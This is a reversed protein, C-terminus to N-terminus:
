ERRRSRSQRDEVKIGSSEEQEELSGNQGAEITEKTVGEVTRLDAVFLVTHAWGSYDGFLNFFHKGVAKYVTSSITKPVKGEHRFRYDRVAIQWVHTDVPIVNHKDLSMLCVCDAVKPGVGQLALLATHAEEYSQNRLGMLWEEGRDMAHIMKATSAIYKARYGFGLSRLTEEVGDQALAEMTPFGYFTRASGGPEESPITLSPGYEQCIKLAMQSIRSINNNASCIFCILNEVPDQRLIRVGPFFSAKASFNADLKSWKDYLETLPVHLQFYDRIFAKDQEMDLDQQQVDEERKVAKSGPAQTAKGSLSDLTTSAEISPHRFTRYQFGNETEEIFWLRHGLVCSWRPASIEGSDLVSHERQWRFSQGCKLTTSLTLESRPIDVSVWPTSRVPSPTNSGGQDTISKFLVATAESAKAKTKTAKAPKSPSPLVDKSASLARKRTIRTFAATTTAMPDDLPFLISSHNQTM